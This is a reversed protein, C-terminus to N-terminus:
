DEVPPNDPHQVRTWRQGDFCAIEKPSFSWLMEPVSDVKNTWLGSAFGTDVQEISKGDYVFMGDETTALYIKGQFQTLSWFQQNDDITSVDKFGAAANGVLLTGNDGCVWVEDHSICRVCNLHEDTRLEVQTWAAGDYHFLRGGFGCTYLDREDTGDISNLMSLGGDLVSRVQLPGASILEWRGDDDRRYVQDNGGCVFLTKGIERISTVYGRTGLRVGADDIKERIISGDGNSYIEVEGESSLAVLRRGMTSSPKKVCVAVINADIDHQAWPDDELTSIYCFLRSHVVERPNYADLLAATYIYDHEVACGALFTVEAPFDNDKQEPIHNPM